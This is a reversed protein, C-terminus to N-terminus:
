VFCFSTRFGEKFNSFLNILDLGLTHNTKVTEVIFFQCDLMDQIEFDDKRELHRERKM